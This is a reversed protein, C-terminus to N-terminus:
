NVTVTLNDIAEQIKDDVYQQINEDIDVDSDDSDDDKVAPPKVVEHEVEVGISSIKSVVGLTKLRLCKKLADEFPEYTEMKYNLYPFKIEDIETCFNIKIKHDGIMRQISRLFKNLEIRADNSEGHSYTVSFSIPFSM